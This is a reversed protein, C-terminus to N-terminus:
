PQDCILIRHSMLELIIIIPNVEVLQERERLLEQLENKQGRKAEVVGMNAGYRVGGSREPTSGPHQASHIDSAKRTDGSGSSLTTDRTKVASM